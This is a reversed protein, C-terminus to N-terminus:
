PDNQVDLTKTRIVQLYYYFWRILYTQVKGHLSSLKRKLVKLTPLKCDVTSKRHILIANPIHSHMPHTTARNM